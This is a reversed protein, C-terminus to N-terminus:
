GTEEIIFHFWGNGNMAGYCPSVLYYLHLVWNLAQFARKDGVGVGEAAHALSHKSSSKKKKKRKQHYQPKFELVEHKSELV